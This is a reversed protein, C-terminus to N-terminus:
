SLRWFLVKSGCAGSLLKLVWWPCLRSGSLGFSRGQFSLAKGSGSYLQLAWFVSSRLKSHSLLSGMNFAPLLESFRYVCPAWHLYRVQNWSGDDRPTQRRQVGSTVGFIDVKTIYGTIKGAFTFKNPLVLPSAIQSICAITFWLCIWLVLFPFKSKYPFPPLQPHPATIVLSDMPPLQSDLAYLSRMPRVAVTKNDPSDHPPSFNEEEKQITSAGKQLLAPTTEEWKSYNLICPLTHSRGRCAQRSELKLQPKKLEVIWEDTPPCKPQKCKKAITFLVATFM